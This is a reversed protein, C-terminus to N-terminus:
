RLSVSPKGEARFAKIEPHAAAYGLLSADNWKVQGKGWVASLGVGDAGAITHGIELVAQKVHNTVEEIQVQLDQMQAAAIKELRLWQAKIDPDFILLDLQENRLTVQLAAIQARLAVIRAIQQAVDQEKTMDPM